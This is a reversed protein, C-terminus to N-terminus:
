KAFITDELRNKSSGFLDVQIKHQNFKKLNRCFPNEISLMKKNEITPQPSLSCDVLSVVSFWVSVFVSEAAGFSQVGRESSSHEVFALQKEIVPCCIITLESPSNQISGFAANTNKSHVAKTDSRVTSTQAVGGLISPSHQYKFPAVMGVPQISHEPEM